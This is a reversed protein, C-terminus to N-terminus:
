KDFVSRAPMEMLREYELRERLKRQRELDRSLENSMENVRNFSDMSDTLPPAKLSDLTTQYKTNPVGDTTWALFAIFAIMIVFFLIVIAGAPMGDSTRYSM